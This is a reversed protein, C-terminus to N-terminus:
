AIHPLIPPLELGILKFMNIKIHIIRKLHRSNYNLSIAELYLHNGFIVLINHKKISINPIVAHLFAANYIICFLLKEIIVANNIDNNSIITVM